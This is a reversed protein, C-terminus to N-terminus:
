VALVFIGLLLLHFFIVVGSKPMINLATASLAVGARVDDFIEHHYSSDKLGIRPRFGLIPTPIKLCESLLKRQQGPKLFKLDKDAM